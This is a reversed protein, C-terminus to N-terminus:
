ELDIRLSKEQRERHQKTSRQCDKFFGKLQLATKVSLVRLKSTECASTILLSICLINSILSGRYIEGPAVTRWLNAYKIFHHFLVITEVRICITGSFITTKGLM